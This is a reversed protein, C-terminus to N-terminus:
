DNKNYPDEKFISKANDFGGIIDIFEDRLSRPTNKFIKKTTESSLFQEVMDAKNQNVLFRALTM